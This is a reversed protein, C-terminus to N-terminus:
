LRIEALTLVVFLHQESAPLDDTGLLVYDTVASDRLITGYTLAYNWGFHKKCYFIFNTLMRKQIRAYFKPSRLKFRALQLEDSPLVKTLLLAVDEIATAWGSIDFSFAM